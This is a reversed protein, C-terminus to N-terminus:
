RRDSMRTSPMTVYHVQDLLHYRSVQSFQTNYQPAPRYDHQSYDQYDYYQQQQALAAVPLLCLLLM